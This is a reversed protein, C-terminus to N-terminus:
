SRGQASDVELPGVPLFRDRRRAAELEQAQSGDWWWLWLPCSEGAQPRLVEAPVGFRNWWALRLFPAHWGLAYPALQGLRADLHQLLQVRQDDLLNADYAEILSDVTADALGSPNYSAVQSSHFPSFPRPEQLGRWQHWFLHIEGKIVRDRHTAMDVPETRLRVGARSFEQRILDIVLTWEPSLNTALVVDLPHGLSDQRVGDPGRRWGAEDLLRGAELTDCRLEPLAPKEGPTGEFYSRLPEYEGRYPGEIIQERPLLRTLAQRVRLEDLPPRRLNFVLAMGDAPQHLRVKRRQVWGARLPELAQPTIETVWDAASNVFLIDVEDALFLQREEKPSRVVRLVLERFNGVGQLAPDKRRWARSHRTLRLESGPKNESM